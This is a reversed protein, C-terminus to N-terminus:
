QVAVVPTNLDDFSTYRWNKKKKLIVYVIKKKFRKQTFRRDGGGRRQAINNNGVVHTIPLRMHAHGFLGVRLDSRDSYARSPTYMRRVAATRTPTTGPCGAAPRYSSENENQRRRARFPPLRARRVFAVSLARASIDDHVTTPSSVRAVVFGRVDTLAVHVRVRVRLMQRDSKAGTYYFIFLKIFVNVTVNSRSVQFCGRTKETRRTWVITPRFRRTNLTSFSHRRVRKLNFYVIWYDGDTM